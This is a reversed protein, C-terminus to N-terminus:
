HDTNQFHKKKELKSSRAMYKECVSEIESKLFGATLTSVVAVFFRWCIIFTLLTARSVVVSFKYQGYINQSMDM